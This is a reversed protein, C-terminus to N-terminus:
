TLLFDGPKETRASRVPRKGDPNRPFLVIRESFRYTEDVSAELDEVKIVTQRVLAKAKALQRQLRKIESEHRM